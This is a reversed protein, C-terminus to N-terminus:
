QCWRGEYRARNFVPRESRIAAKEAAMATPRDPYVEHSIRHVESWWAKDRSHESERRVWQNTIGVYLLGDDADYLRYLVHEAGILREYRRCGCTTTHGSRLDSAGVTAARGCDCFCEWRVHRAGNPAVYDASRVQATLSGFRRGSLDETNLNSNIENRLCGCSLSLGRKVNQGYFLKSRGCDCRCLYRTEKGANPAREIVVLRGFRQGTLDILVSM